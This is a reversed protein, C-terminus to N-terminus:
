APNNRKILEFYSKLIGISYPAAIKEIFEKFDHLANDNASDSITRVVAFPIGFDHCVQAIAAGEMEVALLDPIELKLQALITADNIFQDGSAILGRHVRTTKSSSTFDHAAKELVEYLNAEAHFRSKNRMPIEFKPFLPSANMDHQLLQDAIVVDGRQIQVDAGGAVGTLILESVDFREILQTSTIAAAVKGIGSLVAVIPTGWLNGEIFERQGYYSKRSNLIYEDLGEQEEQMAFILGIKKTKKTQM